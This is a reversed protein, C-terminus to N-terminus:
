IIILDLFSSILYKSLWVTSSLIALQWQFFEHIAHLLDHSLKQSNVGQYAPYQSIIYHTVARQHWVGVDQAESGLVWKIFYIKNNYIKLLIQKHVKHKIQSTSTHPRPPTPTGVSSSVNSQFWYGGGGWTWGMKIVNLNLGFWTYM